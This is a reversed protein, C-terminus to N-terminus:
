KKKEEVAYQINARGAQTQLIRLVQNDFSDRARNKADEALKKNIFEGRKKDLEIAQKSM